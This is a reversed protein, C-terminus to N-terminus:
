FRFSRLERLYLDARDRVHEYADEPKLYGDPFDWLLLRIERRSPKPRLFIGSILNSTQDVPAQDLEEPLFLIACSGRRNSQSDFLFIWYEQELDLADAQDHHQLNRRATCAWRDHALGSQATLHGPMAKFVAEWPRNTDALDVSLRVFLKDDGARLAWRTRITGWAPRWVADLVALHGTTSAQMTEAATFTLRERGSTVGFFGSGYWAARLLGLGSTGSTVDGVRVASPQPPDGEAPQETYRYDFTYDVPGGGKLAIQRTVRRAAQGNLTVTEAQPGSDATEVAGRLPLGGGALLALAIARGATAIRAAAPRRRPPDSPLRM